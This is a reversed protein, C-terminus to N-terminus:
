PRPNSRVNTSGAIDAIVEDYTDPDAVFTRFGVAEYGALWAVQDPTPRRGPGKCEIAYGLAPQRARIAVLDPFGKASHMSRWTHYQLRFGAATLAQVVGQQVEDENRPRM